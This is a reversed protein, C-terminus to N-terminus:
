RIVASSLIPLLNSQSYENNSNLPEDNNKPSSDQNISINDREINTEINNDLIFKGLAFIGGLVIILTLLKKMNLGKMYFVEGVRQELHYRLYITPSIFYKAWM